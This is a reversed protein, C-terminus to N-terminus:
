GKLLIKMEGGVENEEIIEFDLPLNEKISEYAYIQKFRKAFANVIRADGEVQYNGTKSKTINIIDGDRDIKIIEKKKNVEFSAIEGRKALEKVACIIFQESKLETEIVTYFSM